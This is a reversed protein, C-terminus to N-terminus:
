AMWFAGAFGRCAERLCRRGDRFALCMMFRMVRFGREREGSETKESKWHSEVGPLEVKRWM